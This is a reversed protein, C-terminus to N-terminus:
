YRVELSEPRVLIREENIIEYITGDYKCIHDVPKKTKDWIVFYEQLKRTSHRTNSIRKVQSFKFALVVERVSYVAFKEIWDFCRQIQEAPVRCMDTTTSKAEVAIITEAMNNILFIDPLKTSAGGLRVANWGNKSFRKVIADEWQYGRQRRTKNIKKNDKM